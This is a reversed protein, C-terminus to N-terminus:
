THLHFTYGEPDKNIEGSRIRYMGTERDQYYYKLTERVSPFALLDWPIEAKRYLRVELSEQGSSYEEDLLRSRYMLHVQNAYSLNIVMYLDQIEVRANAEELTERQAAQLTSEGIEMYGAPLTWLGYRPQIARRCLLIRDEWEPICGAVIKPNKYHVTDCRTCIHRERYDAEPIKFVLEGGCESCYKM